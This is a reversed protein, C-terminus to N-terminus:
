ARFIPMCTGRFMKCRIAHSLERETMIEHDLASVFEIALKNGRETGAVQYCAAGNVLLEIDNKCMAAFIHVNNITLDATNTKTTM